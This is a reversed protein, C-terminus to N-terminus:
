RVFIVLVGGQRGYVMRLVVMVMHVLFKGFYGCGLLCAFLCALTLSFSNSIMLHGPVFFARRTPHCM